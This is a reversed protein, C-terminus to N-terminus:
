LIYLIELYLHVINEPYVLRVRVYSISKCSKCDTYLHEVYLHVLNVLDVSIDTLIYCKLIYIYM